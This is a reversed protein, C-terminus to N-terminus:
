RTTDLKLKAWRARRAKELNKASSVSKKKTKVKGLESM